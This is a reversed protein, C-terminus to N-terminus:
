NNNLARSGTFGGCHNIKEIIGNSLKTGEIYESYPKLLEM